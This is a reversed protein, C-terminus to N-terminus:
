LSTRFIPKENAYKVFSILANSWSKFRRNYPYPSIKSPKFILDRRTPQKGKYQWINLINEFLEEDSYNNINGPKM